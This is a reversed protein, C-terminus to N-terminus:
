TQREALEVFRCLADVLAMQEPTKCNAELLPPSCVLEVHWCALDRRQHPESSGARAADRIDARSGSRFRSSPM